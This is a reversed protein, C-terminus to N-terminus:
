RGEQFLLGTIFTQMQFSVVQLNTDPSKSYKLKKAGWTTNGSVPEIGGELIGLCSEAGTAGGATDCNKM